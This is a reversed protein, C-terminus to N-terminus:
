KAAVERNAKYYKRHATGNHRANSKKKLQDIIRQYANRQGEEECTKITSNILNGLLKFEYESFKIRIGRM